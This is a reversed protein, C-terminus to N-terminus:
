LRAASALLKSTDRPEARRARARHSRNPIGRVATGRGRSILTYKRSMLQRVDDVGYGQAPAGRPAHRAVDLARIM